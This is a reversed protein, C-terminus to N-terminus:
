FSSYWELPYCFYFKRPGDKRIFYNSGLQTSTEVIEMHGFGVTVEQM